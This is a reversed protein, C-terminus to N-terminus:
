VKGTHVWDLLSTDLVSFSRCSLAASKCPLQKISLASAVATKNQQSTDTSMSRLVLCRSSTMATGAGYSILQADKRLDMFVLGYVLRSCNQRVCLMNSCLGGWLLMVRCYCFPAACCASDLLMFLVNMPTFCIGACFYWSSSHLVTLVNRSHHQYVVCRSDFSHLMVLVPADRAVGAGDLEAGTPGVFVTRLSGGEGQNKLSELHV